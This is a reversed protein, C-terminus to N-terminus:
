HKYQGELEAEARKGEGRGERARAGKIQEGPLDGVTHIGGGVALGGGGQVAIYM